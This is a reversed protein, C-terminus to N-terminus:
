LPEVTYRFLENDYAVLLVQTGKEIAPHGKATIADVWRDPGLQVQGGRETIESAAEGERHMAAHGIESATDHGPLYKNLLSALRGTIFMSVFSDIFVLGLFTAYGVLPLSLVGKLVATSILGLTGFLMLFTLMLVAAPAKGLGIFAMANSAFNAKGAIDHDVETDVDADFDVETDVDADFDVDLDLDLDLDLDVDVEIDVADPVMGFAMQLMSFIATVALSFLFLWNYWAILWEM